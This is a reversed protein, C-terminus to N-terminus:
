KGEITVAVVVPATPDDGKVFEIQKIVNERKPTITLYRVQQRGTLDFAFKSGPVDVRRIYDALHEGNKLAHEETKGDDYTLKVTMSVTGRPSFPYGWGSVGGLMHIVKAPSNVTMTASKPMRAAVRGTPSYLQIVNPIKDGLPDVVVFPVEGVMKPKWDAFVLREVPADESNFMGKTSVITAAKDLPLPLYKGRKTLFELLDTLEQVNMQKEFGDPMLSKTSANLSDIDERLLVFRKAQSDILEVSTKTESALMGNLVKGDLTRVQYLRFNGEVSRSPDLVQVLLEEKPHVAMGTLDPGIKTGEGSHQHCAACHKTFMAKGNTADGSKKIVHTLEEIVKQRDANPLGGGKALLAKARAAIRRDPHEALAQKQDLVLESLLVTGKEAADLYARTTDSRALLVRLAASRTAPSWGAYRTLIASGLEAATSTGAAEVLGTALAPSSRLTIADLIAEVTKADAPRFEALQRAAAVRQEDGAKDDEITKVLTAGVEAAYKDFTALGWAKTLRLLQGRGGNSLKEFLAVLSKEDVYLATLPKDKPWGKALGAIVVEVSSPEATGALQALMTHTSPWATRGLHEAAVAVIERAKPTLKQAVAKDLFGNSSFHAGAATIADPLWRDNLNAPDKLMQALEAGISENVVLMHSLRLCAALRVRLEPDRTLKAALIADAGDATGPMVTAAAVRVGASPHTLAKRAAEPGPSDAEAMLGLADLTWLAHMAGVNLGIEDMGRDDVLKALAPAVRVAKREILLRQAHERWFMTPHKLAAVLQEDTANALSTPQLKQGAPVLRYVRGHKKDRLPTEYAAGRGTRFGTPTPNHQVIINYWDIVWVNGDPGVDAVIPAHWDDVGAVLNWGYRARFDTGNPELVFTATLHGTPDSVFATRNWYEKPYARATYLAHGAAATFGGHWDVQRIEKAIPRFQNSAAISPLVASSWGRVKEYYRNPIALFVSPCGNATSGFLLGDESFGVGWSNNNTGRLFELKTVKAGTDGDAEVKFRFFGQGFRVGEGAVTGTYGSYGCMGYYWGDPGYRLNSPGAHTDRTGWGTFLVQRLDAVGDGDTDKLFLTHPAQLVVVGGHAFALSTPISLKEAFTTFKDAVNDGDTDECVVIKDRGQGESQMENPYDVTVCVWLRGREDWSMAMPKGGFSPESAFLKMEFGAPHQYHKVSEDPPLPKQMKTIPEGITGWREGAPYFPLKAEVYEFPKVDKRPGVMPPGDSYAPVVSPDDGCAWRIGREVLNVFGPHGFTREDHGWATYFVRGKGQTRVWTWPEKEKRGERYELVTRDKENHQTHVYTEDWSEFGDFGRTIPHDKVAPTVRFTGTGHRSFQAGVLDVYAKSNRFCYSACHLPIFGKGSAVYDLLATEQAPTISDINAYVILGDYGALTKESLADPKDTYVIEIKRAALAPALQRYREAPKHHGNDGLFLVKLPKPDAAPAPSTLLVTVLGTLLARMM